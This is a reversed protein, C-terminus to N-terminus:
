EKKKKEQSTSKWVKHFVSVETMLVREFDDNMWTNLSTQYSEKGVDIVCNEKSKEIIKTRGIKYYM